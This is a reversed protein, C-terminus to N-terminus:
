SGIGTASRDLAHTQLRDRAPIAREFGAPPMSIQKSHTHQWTSTEAFPQDSTWLLGVSQTTDNHTTESGGSHPLEFEYLTTFAPYFFFFLFFILWLLLIGHWSKFRPVSSHSARISTILNLHQTIQTLNESIMSCSVDQLTGKWNEDDNFQLVSWWRFLVELNPIVSKTYDFMTVKLDDKCSVM